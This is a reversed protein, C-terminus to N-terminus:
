ELSDNIGNHPYNGGFIGASFAYQPGLVNIPTRLGDRIMHVFRPSEQHLELFSVHNSLRVEDGDLSLHDALNSTWRVRIGSIRELNMAKFIRPLKDTSNLKSEPVRISHIRLSFWGEVAGNQRSFYL